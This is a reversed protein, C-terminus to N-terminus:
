RSRELAEWAARLRDWAKGPTPAEDPHLRMFDEAARRFRRKLVHHLEPHCTFGDTDMQHENM